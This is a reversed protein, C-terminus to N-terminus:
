VIKYSSYILFLTKVLKIISVFSNMLSSLRSLSYFNISLKDDAQIIDIANEASNQQETVSQVQNMLEDNFIAKLKIPWGFSKAACNVYMLTAHLSNNVIDVISPYLSSSDLKENGEKEIRYNYEKFDLTDRSIATMILPQRENMLRQNKIIVLRKELKDLTSLLLDFVEYNIKFLLAHFMRMKERFNILWNILKDNQAAHTEHSTSNSISRAVSDNM